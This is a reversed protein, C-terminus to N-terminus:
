LITGNYLDAGLNSGQMQNMISGAAAVVPPFQLIQASPYIIPPHAVVNSAGETPAGVTGMRDYVDRICEAYFDPLKPTLLASYAKARVAVIADAEALTLGTWIACDALAIGDQHTFVFAGTHSGLANLVTATNNESTGDIYLHLIPTSTNIYVAVDFWGNNLIATTADLDSFGASGRVESQITDSVSTYSMRWGANKTARDDNLIFASAGTNTIKVRIAALMSTVGEMFSVNGWDLNTESASSGIRAM